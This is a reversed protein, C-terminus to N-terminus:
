VDPTYDPDDARSTHREDDSSSDGLVDIIVAKDAADPASTKARLRSSSRKVVPLKAPDIKAKSIVLSPTKQANVTPTPSSEPVDISDVLELIETDATDVTVSECSSSTTNSTISNFLSTPTPGLIIEDCIPAPATIAMPLGARWDLDVEPSESLVNLPTLSAIRNVGAPKILDHHLVKTKGKANRVSYNVPGVQQVIHYPGEKWVPNMKPFEGYTRKIIIEEEPKYMNVNTKNDHRKKFTERAERRNVDARKQVEVRELDEGIFELGTYNDIPLRGNTGYIIQFPYFQSSKNTINNSVLVAENIVTDWERVSLGRADIMSRMITKLTGIAREASGNGQPHYTSSRLKKAGLKEACLERVENGDVNYGQDSIIEYPVGDYAIWKNWIATVITEAKTDKCIAIAVLKSNADVMVLFSNYGKSTTPMSALDIALRELPKPASTGLEMKSKPLELRKCKSCTRCSKVFKKVDAKMGWWYFRNKLMIVTNEIGLHSQGHFETIVRNTLCAPVVICQGKVLLGNVNEQCGTYKGKEVLGSKKLQSLAEAIDKEKLQYHKVREVSPFQNDEPSDSTIYITDELVQATQIQYMEGESTLRGDQILWDCAQELVDDNPMEDQEINYIKEYHRNDSAEDDPIEIRSLYDASVNKKGVIYVLSYDFNELEMLWRARKGRPSKTKKVTTLPEHDTHFIVGNSCYCEWKRSASIVAYMEQDTAHWRRECGSLTKSHYGLVVMKKNVDEQCLTAGVAVGSADCFMHFKKSWDPLHLMAATRLKEKLTTFAVQQASEWLFPVKDSTLKALPASIHAYNKIFRRNFNAMGLFRQLEKRDKPVPFQRVKAVNSESPSMGKGSLKFGLFELEDVMFECKDERLSLNFKALKSFLCRLTDIHDQANATFVIINDMYADIDKFGEDRVEKIVKDMTRQCTAGANVLGFPMRIFQFKGRPVSFSLKPRDEERVSIGWYGSALDLQSFYQCGRFQNFMNDVNPLPYADPVTERNLTRFDICFRKNGDPKDVLLINHNHASDSPEIIGNKLMQDVQQNIEPMWKLPINRQKDKIHRDDKTKIVHVSETCERPNKPDHAFCSSNEDLLSQLQDGVDKEVDGVRYRPSSKANNEFCYIWDEGIQIKDDNWDFNTTGFQTLFDRGLIVLESEGKIIVPKMVHPFIKTLADFKIDCEVPSGVEQDGGIGKVKASHKSVLGEYGRVCFLSTSAGSDILFKM